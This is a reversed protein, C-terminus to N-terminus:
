IDRIARNSDRLALSELNSAFSHIYVYVYAHVIQFRYWLSFYYLRFLSTFPKQGQSEFQAFQFRQSGTAIRIAAFRSELCRLREAFTTELRHNSNPRALLKKSFGNSHSWEGSIHLSRPSASIRESHGQVHMLSSGNAYRTKGCISAPFFSVRGRSVRITLITLM